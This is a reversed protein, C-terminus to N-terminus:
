AMRSKSYSWGTCFEWGRERCVFGAQYRNFSVEQISATTSREDSLLGSLSVCFLWASTVFLLATMALKLNASAYETM